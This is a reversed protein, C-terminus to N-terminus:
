EAGGIVSFIYNTIISALLMIALGIVSYIIGQTARKTKAPDGSSTIYAVANYLLVIVAILGIFTYVYTLINAISIEGKPVNQTADEIQDKWSGDALIKLIQM